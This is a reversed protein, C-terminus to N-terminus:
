GESPEEATAAPKSRRGRKQTSVERQPAAAEVEARKTAEDNTAEDELAVADYEEVPAANAGLTPDDQADVNTVLHKDDGDEANSAYGNALLWAAQTGDVEVEDGSRRGLVDQHLKVLPM